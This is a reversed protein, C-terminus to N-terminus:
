LECRRNVVVDSSDKQETQRNICASYICVISTWWDDTLKDLFTAHETLTPPGTRNRQRELSKKEVYSFSYSRLLCDLLVSVASHVSPDAGLRFWDEFQLTLVGGDGNGRWGWFGSRDQKVRGRKVSEGRGSEGKLNSKEALSTTSSSSQQQKSMHVHIHTNIWIYIVTFEVLIGLKM